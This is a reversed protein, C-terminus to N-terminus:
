SSAEARQLLAARTITGEGFRETLEDIARAVRTDLASKRDPFLSLQADTTFGSVTVGVLRVRREPRDAEALLRRAVPWLREPTNIPDALTAQRTVTDFPEWRLKVTVTTGALGRRRLHRAVEDCLALLAAEVTRRDGVDTPFTTERGLSKRRRDPIVPREDIGRALEAFLRGRLEGFTRVLEALPLRAVDGITRVGIRRLKERTRPGAGGLRSIDLPELLERERGSPVVVLGDPKELDSALKAVFKSAAVGVSATLSERRRIEEKVGRAIQAGDGFLERSGTVDLFAEDLSLPEVQDTYSRLIEFIRGSVSAYLRLRPRLFAARPCRRYAQSIPMASHIGYARAEYSAAAVVGRGRGERPDAGVVVPRGRLEPNERVEVAAYFADMDVHLITRDPRGAGRAPFTTARPASPPQSM